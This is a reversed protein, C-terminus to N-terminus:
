DGTDMVSSNVKTEVLCQEVFGLNSTYNFAENTQHARGRCGPPIHTHM